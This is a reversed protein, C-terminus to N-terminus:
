HRKAPVFQSDSCTLRSRHLRVHSSKQVIPDLKRCRKDTRIAGLCVDRWPMYTNSVLLTTLLRPLEGGSFACIHVELDYGETVIRSLM